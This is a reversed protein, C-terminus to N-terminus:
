LFIVNKHCNQLLKVHKLREGALYPYIQFSDVDVWEFQLLQIQQFM